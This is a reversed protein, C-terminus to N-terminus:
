KVERLENSAGRLSSAASDLASRTRRLIYENGDIDEDQRAVEIWASLLEVDRRAEDIRNLLELVNM